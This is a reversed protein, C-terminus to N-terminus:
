ITNENSLKLWHTTGLFGTLYANFHRLELSIIFTPCTGVCMKPNIQM